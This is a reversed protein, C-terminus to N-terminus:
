SFGAFLFFWSQKEGSRGRVSFVKFLFPLNVGWKEIVKDRLVSPDQSIWAKLSLPESGSDAYSSGSEHTGIWFKAYPKGPDIDSESNLAFLRDVKSNHYVIGWDYNKVSCRLRVPFRSRKQKKKMSKDWTPEM